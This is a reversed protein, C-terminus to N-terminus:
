SHISKPSMFYRDDSEEEGSSESTLDPSPSHSKNRGKKKRAGVDDDDVDNEPEGDFHVRQLSALINKMESALETYESEEGNYEICNSYILEIDSM